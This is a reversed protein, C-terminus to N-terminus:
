IVRKEFYFNHKITFANLIVVMIIYLLTKYV